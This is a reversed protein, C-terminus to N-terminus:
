RSTVKTEIRGLTARMYEIDKEMGIIAKSNAQAEEVKGSLEQIKEEADGLDNELQAVKVNQSWVWGALPVVVLSLVVTFVKWAWDAMKSTDAL